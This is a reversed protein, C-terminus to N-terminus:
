ILERMKISKKMKFIVLSTAIMAFVSILVAFDWTNDIKKYNSILYYIMGVAAIGAFLLCLFSSQTMRDCIKDRLERTFGKEPPKRTYKYLYYVSSILYLLPLFGFFYPLAIYIKRIADSNFTLGGWFFVKYIICSLLIYLRIKKLKDKDSEFAYYKGCYVTITKIKGNADVVNELRYDNAYKKSVL